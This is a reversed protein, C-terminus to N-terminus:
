LRRPVDGSGPFVRCGQVGHGQMVADREEQMGVDRFGQMGTDRCGQM